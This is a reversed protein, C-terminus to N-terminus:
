GGLYAQCVRTDAILQEGTGELVVVGTELVYAYHAVKLAAFAPSAALSVLAVALLKKMPRDEFHTASAIM